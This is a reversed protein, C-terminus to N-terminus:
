TAPLYATWESFNLEQRGREVGHAIVWAIPAVSSYWPWRTENSHCDYCSQRLVVAVDPPATIDGTVPPNNGRLSALHALSPIIWPALVLLGVMGLCSICFLNWWRRM